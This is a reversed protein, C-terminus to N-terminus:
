LQCGKLCGIMLFMEWFLSMRLCLFAALAAGVQRFLPAFMLKPLQELYQKQPHIISLLYRICTRLFPGTMAKSDEVVVSGFSFLFFFHTDDFYTPPVSIIGLTYLRRGV